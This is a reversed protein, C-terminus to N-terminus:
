IGFAFKCVTFIGLFHTAIGLAQHSSTPARLCLKELARVKEINVM